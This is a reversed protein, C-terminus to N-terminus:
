EGDGKALEALFWADAQSPGHGNGNGNGNGKAVTDPLPESLTDPVFGAFTPLEGPKSPAPDVPLNNAERYAIWDAISDASAPLASVALSCAVVAQMLHNKKVTIEWTTRVLHGTFASDSRPPRPTKFGSSVAM